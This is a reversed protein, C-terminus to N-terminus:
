MVGGKVLGLPGTWHVASFFWGLVAMMGVVTFTIAFAFVLPQDYKALDMAGGLTTALQRLYSEPYTVKGTFPESLEGGPRVVWQRFAFDGYPSEADKIGVSRRLHILDSDDALHFLNVRSAMNLILPPLGHIRHAGLEIGIAREGGARAARYFVDHKTDIGWTNRNYFDLAEDVIMRRERGKIHAACFAELLRLMRIWDASDGSQLIAVESPNDKNWLGRFPHDDWLPVVVSNPIVPGKQWHEYLKSADRRNKFSLPGRIKEARFRPKTDVVIQMCTPREDQIERIEWDM